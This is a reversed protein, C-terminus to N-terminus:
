LPTVYYNHHNHNAQFITSKCYWLCWSYYENSHYHPQSKSSFDYKQLIVFMAVPPAVPEANTTIQKFFRVKATDCVDINNKRIHRVLQSKSSFDYKQLIVFMREEESSAEVSNHNAQFITSKCYWLCWRTATTLRRSTTIQKFFRVKATDCVDAAYISSRPSPQSKSSFDYKQLIVFMVPALAPACACTTIQKFFRVKATDCVDNDFFLVGHYHNHNAQFITSKCYWLCREILPSFSCLLQSKSSFDYKQLIVFM